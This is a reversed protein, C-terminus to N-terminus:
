GSVDVDAAALPYLYPRPVDLVVAPAPRREIEGREGGQARVRCDGAYAPQGMIVRDVEEGFRGRSVQDLIQPRQQDSVLGTRDRNERVQVRALGCLQYAAM